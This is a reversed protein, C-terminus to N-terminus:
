PLVIPPSVPGCGPRNKAGHERGGRGNREEDEVQTAVSAPRRGYRLAVGGGNGGRLRLIAPHVTGESDQDQRVPIVRQVVPVILIVGEARRIEGM